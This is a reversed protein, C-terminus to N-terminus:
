PNPKCSRFRLRVYHATWNGASDCIEERLLDEVEVIFERVEHAPERDRVGLAPVRVMVRAAGAMQVLPAELAEGALRVIAM